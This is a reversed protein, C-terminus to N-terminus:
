SAQCPGTHEKLFVCDPIESFVQAHFDLDLLTVWGPCVESRVAYPARHAEVSDPQEPSSSVTPVTFVKVPLCGANKPFGRAYLPGVPCLECV